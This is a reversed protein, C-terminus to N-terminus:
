LSTRINLFPSKLSQYRSAIILVNAILSCLTMALEGLEHPELFLHFLFVNVTIPMVMVAGLLAFYQSLLLVGCIIEMVGLFPWFYNTQKMGGIFSKIQTVNKPASEVASKEKREKPIFKQVGGYLFLGGLGLQLIILGIKLINM